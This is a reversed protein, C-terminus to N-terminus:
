VALSFARGCVKWKGDEKIVKLTEDIHYTEGIFFLKAILTFVPNINRKGQATIRIEAESDSQAIIETHVSFLKKRMYNLDFGVIRAEDAAQEIYAKVLDVDEEATLDSCLYDAMSEDLQFYAKTFNVAAKAPTDRADLYGLLLQLVLAVVLVAVFTFFRDGQSM